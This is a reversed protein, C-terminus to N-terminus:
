VGTGPASEWLEERGLLSDGWPCVQPRRGLWAPMAQIGRAPFPLRFLPNCLSLHASPVKVWVVCFSWMAGESEWCSTECVVAPDAVWIASHYDRRHWCQKLDEVSQPGSPLYAHCLDKYRSGQMNPWEKGHGRLGPVVKTWVRGLVEPSPQNKWMEIFWQTM